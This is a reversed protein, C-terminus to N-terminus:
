QKAPLSVVAFGRNKLWALALDVWVAIEPKVYNADGTNGTEHNALSLGHRGNEFIHLEFPVGAKRYASALALSNEVLVCDDTQTHWIFAPPTDKTVRRELSLKERLASDGGSIVGITGEHLIGERSSIVPYCLVAADPRLTEPSVGLPKAGEEYLTALSCALHGGASFGMVAIHAPDVGFRAANERIYKIAMCAQMLPAPYPTYVEYDLVFAAYGATMFRIALPEAERESCFEYGGGPCILVAPRTKPLLEETSHPIYTHLFGKQYSGRAQGNAAYLDVTEYIM